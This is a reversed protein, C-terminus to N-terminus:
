FVVEHQGVAKLGKELTKVKEGMVNFVELSIDMTESLGYRIVTSPNFPNPYNAYIEPSDPAFSYEIKEVAAFTATGDFDIQKLRVWVDGPALEKIFYSYKTESLKTGNGPIFAETAFTTGDTSKQIEFGYNNTETATVWDVLIGNQQQTAAFAALEVPVVGGFKSSYSNLVEKSVDNQVLAVSYVSKEEWAPEIKYRYTFSYVGAATPYAEGENSPVAKRFVHPFFREGNSGPPSTYNIPHEVAFVKM